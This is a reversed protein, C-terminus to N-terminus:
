GCVMHADQRRPAPWAADPFMEHLWTDRNSAAVDAASDHARVDYMAEVDSGARVHRAHEEAARRVMAKLVGRHREPLTKDLHQAYKLALERM